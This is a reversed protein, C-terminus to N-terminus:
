FGLRLKRVHFAEAHREPANCEIGRLRALARWTDADFWSRAAQSPYAKGLHEIKRELARESLAVFANPQGLDGDWKPIEYELIVQDRFANFTLEGVTRHDQHADGRWHSLVVDPVFDARVSGLFDKLESACWPFHNERFSEVIVRSKAAGELFIAASREAEDRRQDDSSLVVWVIELDPNASIASLISAGCGIEIDDSHAGLCLLKQAGPLTLGIM